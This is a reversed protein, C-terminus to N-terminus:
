MCHINRVGSRVDHSCEPCARGSSCSSSNSLTKSSEPLFLSQWEGDKANGNEYLVVFTAVRRTAGRMTLYTEEAVLEKTDDYFKFNAGWIYGRSEEIVNVEAYGAGRIMDKFEQITELADKSLRKNVISM